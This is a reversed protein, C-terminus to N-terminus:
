LISYIFYNMVYQLISQVWNLLVPIYMDAYHFCSDFYVIWPVFIDSLIAKSVASKVEKVKRQRNKEEREKRMQELKLKKRELEAKRDAMEPLNRLFIILIIIILWGGFIKKQPFLFQKTSSDFIRSHLCLKDPINLWTYFFNCCDARLSIM